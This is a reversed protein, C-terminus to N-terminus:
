YLMGHRVVVVYMVDLEEGLRAKRSQDEHGDITDCQYAVPVREIRLGFGASAKRCM